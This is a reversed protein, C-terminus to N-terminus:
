DEFWGGELEICMCMIRLEQATSTHSSSPGENSQIDSQVLHLSFVSHVDFSGHLLHSLPSHLHNLSRYTNCLRLKLSTCPVYSQLPIIINISYNLHYLIIYVYTM